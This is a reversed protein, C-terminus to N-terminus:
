SATAHKGMFDGHKEKAMSCKIWHYSDLSDKKRYIECLLFADTLLKIYFQFKQVSYEEINPAWKKPPIGAEFIRSVASTM